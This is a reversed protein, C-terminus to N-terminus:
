IKFQLTLCSSRFDSESSVLYRSLTKLGSKVLGHTFNVLVVFGVFAMKFGTGVSVIGNMLPVEPVIARIRRIVMVIDM